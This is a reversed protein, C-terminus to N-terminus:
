DKAKCGPALHALCIYEIMKGLGQTAKLFVQTPPILLLLVARLSYHPELGGLTEEILINPKQPWVTKPTM